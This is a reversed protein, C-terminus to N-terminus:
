ATANMEENGKEALWWNAITIIIKLKQDNCFGKQM